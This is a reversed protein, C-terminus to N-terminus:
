ENGRMRYNNDKGKVEVCYDKSMEYLRSGIAEDFNLLDQVSYETSVIIPMKNIYRHNVIEFMVNIDTENVKGKFLDDILLLEAKKYKDVLSNYKDTDVYNQKLFTMSDRYPMYVVNMDAKIFNQALAVALHTKGCGPSGCLMLSSCDGLTGKKSRTYYNTCTNKMQVTVNNWPEFTKFTKNLDDFKLGSKAFQDKVHHM